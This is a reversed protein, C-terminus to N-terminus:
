FVSQKQSSGDYNGDPKGFMFGCLNFIYIYIYICIYEFM